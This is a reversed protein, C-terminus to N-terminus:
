SCYCLSGHLVQWHTSIGARSCVLHKVKCAFSGLWLHKMGLFVYFFCMQGHKAAYIWGWAKCRQLSCGVADQQRALQKAHSFVLALTKAHEPRWSMTQHESLHTCSCFHTARHGRTCAAGSTYLAMPFARSVRCQNPSYRMLAEWFDWMWIPLLPSFVLWVAPPGGPRYSNRSTKGPTDAKSLM